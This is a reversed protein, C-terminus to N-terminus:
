EAPVPPTLERQLFRVGIQRGFKLGTRTLHGADVFGVRRHLALSAEAGEDAIVAIVQRLGAARAAELFAALLRTGVGRGAAEPALYISNEVTYRYASKTSWAVGLAYGLVAGDEAQAVLFPIGHGEISARKEAWGRPTSEVEDFTVTSTRVYHNYIASIAPIDGATVTRIVLDNM